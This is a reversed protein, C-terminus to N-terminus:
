NKKHGPFRDNNLVHNKLTGIFTKLHKSKLCNFRLFVLIYKLATPMFEMRPIRTLTTVQLTLSSKGAIYKELDDKGGEGVHIYSVVKAEKKKM